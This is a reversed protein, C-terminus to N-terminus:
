SPKSGKRERRYPSVVSQYPRAPVSSQDERCASRDPSSSSAAHVSGDARPREVRHGVTVEVDETSRNSQEVLHDHRDALIWAFLAQERDLLPQAHQTLQGGIEGVDAHVTETTQEHIETAF